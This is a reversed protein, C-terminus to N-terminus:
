FTFRAGMTPFWNSANFAGAQYGGTYSSYTLGGYLDFRKTFHYDLYASTMYLNGSCTGSRTTGSLWVPLSAPASCTALSTSATNSVGPTFADWGYANQHSVYFAGVIDLKDNYAYKVGTWVTDLLKAHPLSANNVSSVRYGGQDNQAGIGVNDQANHYIVHAWGLFFKWQQFTYRGALVFGTDDTVNASLTDVNNNGTSVVSKGFTPTVYNPTFTSTGLLQTASLSSLSSMAQNSFGLVADFDFAGYTAGLNVQGLTNKPNWCQQVTGAPTVATTSYLYNCGSNGDAFKYIAGFRAKFQDNIPYALTYKISDDARANETWGLGAMPTGSYGILSYNYAGGAPDYTGVLDNSLTKHRGFTLQGYTKSALGVYLQDNFAQGGRSGDGNLSKAYSPLGNNDVLSGPANALQGSQPNIGTSAYFIGSLGPLIEQAGKIGLTTQSLGSPAIGFYSRTASKSALANGLYFKGNSPLGYSAWGLGADITGFLTIGYFTLPADGKLLDLPAQGAQALFSGASGGAAAPAVAQKELKDLRKELEANEKKLQAAQAKLQQVDSATQASAAGAASLIATVAVAAMLKTKM